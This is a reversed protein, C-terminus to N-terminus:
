MDTAGNMLAYSGAVLGFLPPHELYPQVLWFPTGKPSVYHTRIKYQPHPSWSIPIHKQVINMGLWTWAHEDFTSGERPWVLHDHYRLVFGLLLICVLVIVGKIKMNEGPLQYCYIWAKIQLM